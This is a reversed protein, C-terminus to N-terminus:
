WVTQGWRREHFQDGTLFREICPITLILEVTVTDPSGVGEEEVGWVWTHHPRLCDEILRHCRFWTIGM